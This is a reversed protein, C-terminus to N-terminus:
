EYKTYSLALQKLDSYTYDKLALLTQQNFSLTFMETNKGQVPVFWKLTFNNIDEIRYMERLVNYSDKLLTDETQFENAQLSLVIDQQGDLPTIEINLIINAFLQEIVIESITAITQIKIEDSSKPAETKNHEKPETSNTTQSYYFIGAVGIILILVILIAKISKNM